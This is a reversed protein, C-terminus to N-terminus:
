KLDYKLGPPKSFSKKRVVGKVKGIHVTIAFEFLSIPYNYRDCIM